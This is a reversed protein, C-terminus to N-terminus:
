PEDIPVGWLHRIAAPTEVTMAAPRGPAKPQAIARILWGDPLYFCDKRALLASEQARGRASDPAAIWRAMARASNCAITGSNAAHQGDPHAGNACGAAAILAAWTLILSFARM